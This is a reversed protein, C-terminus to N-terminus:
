YGKVTYYVYPAVYKKTQIFARHENICYIYKIGNNKSWKLVEFIYDKANFKFTKNKIKTANIHPHNINDDFLGPRSRPLFDDLNEQIKFNLNDEIVSTKNQNQNINPLNLFDVTDKNISVPKNLNTYRKISNKDDGITRSKIFSRKNDDIIISQEKPLIVFGMDTFISDDIITIIRDKKYSLNVTDKITSEPFISATWSFNKNDCKIIKKEYELLDLTYIDLDYPTILTNM